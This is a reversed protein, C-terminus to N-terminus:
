YGDRGPFAEAAAWETETEAVANTMAQVWTTATGVRDFTRVVGAATWLQDYEEPTCAQEVLPAGFRTRKTADGDDDRIGIRVVFQVRGPQAPHDEYYRAHVVHM